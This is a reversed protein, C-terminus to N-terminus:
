LLDVSSQPLLHSIKKLDEVWELEKILDLFVEDCSGQAFYDRGCSAEYGYNIGLEQGVQEKNVVM